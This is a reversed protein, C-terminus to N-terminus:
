ILRFKQFLFFEFFRMCITKYLRKGSFWNFGDILRGSCQKRIHMRVNRGEKMRGEFSPFITSIEIKEEYKQHFTHMSKLNKSLLSFHFRSWSFLLHANSLDKNSTDEPIRYALWQEACIVKADSMRIDTPIECELQCLTLRFSMTICMFIPFCKRKDVSNMGNSELEGKATLNLSIHFFHMFKATLEGVWLPFVATTWAFILNVFIAAM